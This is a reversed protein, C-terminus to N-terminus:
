SKRPVKRRRRADDDGKFANGDKELKAIDRLYPSVIHQLPQVFGSYVGDKKGKTNPSRTALSTDVGAKILDIIQEYNGTNWFEM